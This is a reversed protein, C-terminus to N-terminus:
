RWEIVPTNRPPLRRYSYTPYGIMMAGFSQHGEPLNLRTKLPPYMGAAANFYGAWCAGLGFGTAALELYTLAITCASQATRESEPAHAVILHPASRLIRDRGSEWAAVVRDLHMLDALDPFERIITRMWDVVLAALHKMEEESSIVLWRVPQTNHGSPAHSAVRILESLIEQPVKERSYNRISRRFRLFHEVHEPDLIKEKQIPMCRDPTIDGVSLAGEPCIAVCHGCKICLEEEREEHSPFADKSQMHILGLPCVAVCFGDRKCLETNVNLTM